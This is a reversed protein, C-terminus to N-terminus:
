DSSVVAVLYFLIVMARSVPTVRLSFVRSHDYIVYKRPTPVLVARNKFSRLLVFRLIGLNVCM